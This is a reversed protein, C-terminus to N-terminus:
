QHHCLKRMVRFDVNNNMCLLLTHVVFGHCRLQHHKPKLLMYPGVAISWHCQLRVGMWSPTGGHAKSQYGRIQAMKRFLDSKSNVANLIRPVQAGLFSLSFPRGFFLLCTNLNTQKTNKQPALIACSIRRQLRYAPSYPIDHVHLLDQIFNRTHIDCIERQVGSAAGLTIFYIELLLLLQLQGHGEGEVLRLVLMQHAYDAM